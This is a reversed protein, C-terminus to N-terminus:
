YHVSSCGYLLMTRHFPPPPIGGAKDNKAHPSKQRVYLFCDCTVVFEYMVIIVFCKCISVHTPGNPSINLSLFGQTHSSGVMKVAPHRHLSSIITNHIYIYIYRVSLLNLTRNGNLDFIQTYLFKITQNPRHM